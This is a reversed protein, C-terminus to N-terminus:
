SAHVRREEVGDEDALGRQPRAPGAGRTAHGRVPVLALGIGDPASAFMQEHGNGLGGDEVGVEVREERRDLLTVVRRQAALGIHGLDIARQRTAGDLDGRADVTGISGVTLAEGRNPRQEFRLEHIM